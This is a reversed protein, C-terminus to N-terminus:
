VLVVRAGLVMQEVMTVVVVLVVAASPAEVRAVWERVGVVSVVAERAVAERALVPMAEAKPAAMTAVGVQMGVAWSAAVVAVVPLVVAQEVVM